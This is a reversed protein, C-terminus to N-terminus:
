GTKRVADVHVEVASVKVGTQREVEYAVRNRVTAGVEALNLRNEVVVHLDVAVSSEAARVDIGRTLGKRPRLRAFRRGAMGVVGYCEAATHGVLQAIAHTTVTIRGNGTVRTVIARDM